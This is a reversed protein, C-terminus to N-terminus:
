KRRRILLSFAGLGLVALSSPEPVATLQGRIAGAPFAANHINVYFGAGNATNIENIKALTVDQTGPVAPATASGILTGPGGSTGVGLGIFIGVSTGPVGGPGHIHMASPADINAYSFNWSVTSTTDDLTVTGSGIGDPDGGGTEQAGTLNVSYVVAAHLRTQISCSLIMLAAVVILLRMIFEEYDFLLHRRVTEAQASRM